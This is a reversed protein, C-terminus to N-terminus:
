DGGVLKGKLPHKQGFKGPGKAATVKDSGMATDPRHEKRGDKYKTGLLAAERAVPAAAATKATTHTDDSDSTMYDYLKKGGYLLAIVGAVPLATNVAVTALAKTVESSLKDGVMNTIDSTATQLDNWVEKASATVAAQPNKIFNYANSATNIVDKAAEPDAIAAGAVTSKVPNRAIVKGTNVAGQGAVRMVAPAGARIAAALAPWVLPAVESVPKSTAPKKARKLTGPGGNAFGNGGMSSAVGGAASAGASAMEELHKLDTTKYTYAEGEKDLRVKVRGDVNVNKSVAVIKGPGQPTSVKDGVSYTNKFEEAVTAPINMSKTIDAIQRQKAQIDAQLAKIQAQKAKKADAAAKAAAAAAVAPNQAAIGAPQASQPTAPAAGPAVPAAEMELESPNKMEYDLYHYVSELYDAAKTIKAQVWGELGQRENVGKLMQHLKMSSNAARYLDSRAMQVEHDPHQNYTEPKLAIKSDNEFIDSTKM